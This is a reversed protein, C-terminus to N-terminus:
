EPDIRVQKSLRIDRSSAGILIEFEGPDVIWGKIEPDYFWFAERDLSFNISKTEGPELFVKAFAKLEKEPRTKRPQLARVYVQTVEKGCRDGINKVDMSIGLGDTMSFAKDHIRLNSYEFKTYSLGHGFPFLPEMVKKDYYRYGVFLGEEYNVKGNEGPFNIFTPNDELRKPFTIPLKGSPSLDGFLVDALANGQEQSNYWMQLVAPVWDLWPMEVPSGCNLAVIVNPNTEAIKEILENQNGPLRMDVRDFSESEWESTLGAIVIVLDSRAALDVAETMLDKAHPPLHGLALSRWNLDGEWKYEVRISYSQDAVMEIQVTQQGNPNLIEWTDILKEGNVFLRGRGVMNLGFSHLGNVKPTFYGSLRVSFRDQSVKPVCNDFWGFQVRKSILSYAPQGSLDLNDFFELRVGRNGDVTSLLDPAPAPLGKHIFCGPAYSVKIKDGARERIGDLPSILYHPTVASSGGGLVQSHLANEGIVAISKVVEIDLPLIKENKLLVIAEQAAERILVRHEPKDVSRDSRLEPNEFLGARKITHLLRNVKADIDKETIRGDEIAAKVYKVDM